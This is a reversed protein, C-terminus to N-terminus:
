QIPFGPGRSNTSGRVTRIIFAIVCGLVTLFGSLLFYVSNNFGGPVSGAAQADSNPVSDKCAPCAMALSCIAIVLVFCLISSWRKM